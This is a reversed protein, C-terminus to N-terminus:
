GLFPLFACQQNQECFTKFFVKNSSFPNFFHIFYSIMNHSFFRGASTSYFRMKYKSPIVFAHATHKMSQMVSLYMFNRLLPFAAKAPDPAEASFLRPAFPSKCATQITPFTGIYPLYPFHFLFKYAGCPMIQFLDLLPAVPLLDHKRQCADHHEAGGIGHDKRGDRQLLIGAPQRLMGMRIRAIHVLFNQRFHSIKQDAALLLM